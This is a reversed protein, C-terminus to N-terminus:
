DLDKHEPFVPSSKLSERLLLKVLCHGTVPGRLHPNEEASLEESVEGDSSVLPFVEGESSSM